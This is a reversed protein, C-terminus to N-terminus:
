DTRKETFYITAALCLSMNALFVEKWDNNLIATKKCSKLVETKHFTINTEQLAKMVRNLM